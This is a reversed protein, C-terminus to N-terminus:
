MLLLDGSLTVPINMLQDHFPFKKCTGVHINTVHCHFENPKISM